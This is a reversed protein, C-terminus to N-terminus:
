PATAPEFGDDFFSDLVEFRINDTGGNYADGGIVLILGNGIAAIGPSIRLSGTAPATVTTPGALPNGLGDLVTWTMEVDAFYGAVDFSALRVRPADPKVNLQIVLRRGIDTWAVNELSGYGTEWHRAAAEEDLSDQSSGWIRVPTDATSGHDSPIFTGNGSLQSFDITRVQAESWGPVLLAVLCVLGSCANVSRM